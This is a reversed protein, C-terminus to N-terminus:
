GTAVAKPFPLPPNQYPQGFGALERFTQPDACDDALEQPFHNPIDDQPLIAAHRFYNSITVRLGDTSKPYAGHWLAGHFAILSGAPCEVPVAEKHADPTPKSGRKHSGPVAAFAGGERTYETLAWTCNANHATDGWPLQVFSQDCHMGLSDGYGDGKWKIFSNFSSFRAAWAQVGFGAFGGIGFLHHVIATGAPNVALDRFCRDINCLQFLQFQAPKVGGGGLLELTGQYDGYDLECEAGGEVTFKCGVKRESEDLLHQVLENVQAKTVGTVDQPVITYGQEDLEEIYPKLGLEAITDELQEELSKTETQASM